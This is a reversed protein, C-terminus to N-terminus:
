VRPIGLHPRFAPIGTPDAPRQRGAATAGANRHRADWRNMYL